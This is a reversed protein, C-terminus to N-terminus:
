TDRWSGNECKYTDMTEISTTGVPCTIMWINGGTNVSNLTTATSASTERECRITTMYTGNTCSSSSSAIALAQGLFLLGIGLIVFVIVSKM